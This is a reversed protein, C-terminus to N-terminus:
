QEIARAYVDLYQPIVVEPAWLREARTRAQTRLAAHREADEQVWLIGRALDDVEFPQALYGSLGHEVTDPLGTCNFAVVPCGCAQAETAIQPLNDQRSPVVAVDAANYLQTLKSDDEIHGLWTVPIPPVIGGVPASQGFVAARWTITPHNAALRSLAALLLDFGKRPDQGGGIAGFLILFTNDPLGLTQRCSPRDLPRFQTLDLPNPIFDVPQRALLTSDRACGALWRSPAIIHMPQAWHRQKRRWILRDLDLGTAPEPRTGARYGTRWRADAGDPAYHECGCFAWMDHLTWVVPKQIRGIDAISLTEGGIWHLNIVDAQMAAIRTAWRSPLWNGSRAERTPLPGLRFIANGLRSRTSAPPWSDQAAVDPRDSYRERVLMRSGCGQAHLLQHLRFAARAAGGKIDSHAMLLPRITSHPHRTETM